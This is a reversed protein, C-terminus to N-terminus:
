RGPPPMANLKLLAMFILHCPNDAWIDSIRNM